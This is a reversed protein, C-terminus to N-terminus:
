DNGCYNLANKYEFENLIPLFGSKKTDSLISNEKLLGQEVKNKILLFKSEAQITKNKKLKRSNSKRLKKVKIWNKGCKKM